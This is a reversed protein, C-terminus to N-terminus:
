GMADLLSALPTMVMDRADAVGVNTVHGGCVNMGLGLTSDARVAKEVGASANQVTYPITVNTLAYTSTRPVPGPLNGVRYHVLDHIVAFADALVEAGAGAFGDDPLASGNGAGSEVPFRHGAHVLERVCEPTMAVRFENDKVEKPIGVIM